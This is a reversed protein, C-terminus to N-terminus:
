DLYHIYYVNIYMYIYKIKFVYRWITQMNLIGFVMILHVFNSCINLCVICVFENILAMTSMVYVCHGICLHVQLVKVIHPIAEFLEIM